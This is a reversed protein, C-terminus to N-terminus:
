LNQAAIAEIEILYDKPLNKTPVAARAPQHSGFFSAYVTNAAAWYQIDAIYITTKIVLEKCSNGAQLVADINNLTQLTQEEITGLPQNPNDPNIPLQGSIYLLGNHAIAQAYHGLPAPAKPTSITTLPTTIPTTMKANREHSAKIVDIM